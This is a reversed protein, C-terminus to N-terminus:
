CINVNTQENYYGNNIYFLLNPDNVQGTQRLILKCNLLTNLVPALNSLSLGTLNALNKASIKGKKIMNQLLLMQIFKMSINYKKDTEYEIVCTSMDYQFNLQYDPNMTSYYSCFIDFCSLLNDSINIKQSDNVNWAYKNIIKFNISEPLEFDLQKQMVTKIKKYKNNINKSLRCDNIQTRMKTYKEIDFAHDISVLLENEIDANSNNFLRITLLDQYENFFIDKNKASLGLRILKRLYYIDQKLTTYKKLNLINNHLTKVIIKISNDDDIKIRDELELNFFIHRKEKVIVNSLSEYFYQLDTVELMNNIHTQNEIKFNTLDYLCNNKDYTRNIVFRYFVYKAIIEILSYKCDDYKEFIQLYNRINKTYEKYDCYINSIDSLTYKDERKELHCTLCEYITDCRSSFIKIVFDIISLLGKQLLCHNYFNLLIMNFDNSHFLKLHETENYNPVLTSFNYKKNEVFYNLNRKGFSLICDANLNILTM